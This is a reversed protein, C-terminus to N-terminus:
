EPIGLERALAAHMAHWVVEGRQARWCGEEDTQCADSAKVVTLSPERIAAMFEAIIDTACDHARRSDSVYRSAVRWCRGIVEPGTM